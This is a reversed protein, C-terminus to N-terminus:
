QQPERLTGRRILGKAYRHDPQADHARVVHTDRRVPVSLQECIEGDGFDFSADLRGSEDSNALVDASCVQCTPLSEVVEAEIGVGVTALRTVGNDDLGTVVSGHDLDRGAVSGRRLRPRLGSLSSTTADVPGDSASWAVVRPRCSSRRAVLLRVSHIPSRSRM